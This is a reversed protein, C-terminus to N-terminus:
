AKLKKRRLKWETGAKAIQEASKYVSFLLVALCTIEFPLPAHYIGGALGICKEAADVGVGTFAAWPSASLGYYLGRRAKKNGLGQRLEAAKEPHRLFYAVMPEHILGYLGHVEKLSNGKAVKEIFEAQSLSRIFTFRSFSGATAYEQMVSHELREPLYADGLRVKTGDVNIILRENGEKGLADKAHGGQFLLMLPEITGGYISSALGLFYDKLPVYKCEDGRPQSIAHKLRYKHAMGTESVLNEMSGFAEQMRKKRNRLHAIGHIHYDCGEKEVITATGSRKGPRPNVAAYCGAMFLHAFFLYEEIYQKAPQLGSEIVRKELDKWNEAEEVIRAAKEADERSVQLNIMKLWCVQGAPM